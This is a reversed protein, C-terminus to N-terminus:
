APDRPPVWQNPECYAATPSISSVWVTSDSRIVYESAGVNTDPDGWDYTYGLRTWPLAAPTYYRNFQQRFWRLHTERNGPAAGATAQADPATGAEGGPAAATPPTIVVEPLEIQCSRDDIESDSCPRFVDAPDVWLEVVRDQSGQAALGLYQRLRRSLLEGSLDFDRCREMLQPVPTVWVDISLPLSEGERGDYGTFDTWTAVLVRDTDARRDWVTGPTDPTLAWLNGVVDGRDLIMVDRLAAEFAPEEPVRSRLAPNVIVGAVISGLVLNILLLL